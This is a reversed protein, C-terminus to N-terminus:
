VLESELEICKHFLVNNELHIHRHLDKEFQELTQLAVQYTNCGDAPIKYGNTLKAINRFRDGEIQHDDLLSQLTINVEGFEDPTKFSEKKHRTMKRIYAFLFLEEKKMHTSLNEVADNFLNRVEFLEKHNNGHVNCLKQLIEQLFPATENIYAHHRNEIYDCLKDPELNEIKKSDPDISQLITEIEILLTQVDVNSDKCAKSLSIGGGCCYDIDYKDFLQSTNFNFRVIEGISTKEQIIM